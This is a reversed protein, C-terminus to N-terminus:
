KRLPRFERGGHEVFKSFFEVFHLRLAHIAPAFAGLVIAVCHLVIAAVAGLILDGSLGALQNAANALLASGLGIAMIRAYSVVNGVHKLLELPALLGGFLFLLPILAGATALIPRALLWPSPLALGAALAALCLLLGITAAKGAAERPQRRRLATITGLLLGLIVHFGGLALSFVLMPIVARSRRPLLPELGLIEGGAEGFFEGFLLGFLIACGASVLMIRAGDALAGERWRRLILLSATALVLGHGADGLMMAFFLPFFFGIFPTPDWSTYRPLPLLRTFLEFPRLYPPNVLTVPVMELDQEMLRLEEVAVTGGFREGLRRTLGPVADSRGWGLIVFCLGTEQVVGAASLLGLREVVWREVRRYLPLWQRAFTEMSATVGGLEREVADIRAGIRALREPLPLNRLEAPFPFEPLREDSLLERVRASHQPPAAILGVLTGDRGRATSMCLEGGTLRGLMEGLREALSPDKLTIAIFELGSGPEGDWLLTGITELLVAYEGLQERERLLLARREDQQRCFSLQEGAGAAFGELLPLPQLRSEGNELPPLIAIVECTVQRLNELFIREATTAEDPVLRHLERRRESGLFDGAKPEPHFIGEERIIELVELLLEKPGAIELKSMRVIM